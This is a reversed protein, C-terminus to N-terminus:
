AILEASLPESALPIGLAFAIEGDAFDLTLAGATCHTNARVIFEAALQRKAAPVPFPYICSFTLTQEGIYALGLLPGHPAQLPVALSSPDLAEVTWGAHSLYATIAALLVNDM